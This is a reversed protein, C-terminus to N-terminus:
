NEQLHLTRLHEIREDLSESSLAARLSEVRLPFALPTYKKPKTFILKTPDSYTEFFSQIDPWHLTEKFVENYAQQLLLHTPEHEKLVQFLLNSSAQLNRFKKQQSPYNQIVMGSIVSIDRFQRKAMETSNISQKLDAWLNQTGLCEQLFNSNVDWKKNSFLEIGYDNASISISLSKNKSIRYALIAGIIDHNQRGLMPYLYLSYSNRSSIFEALLQNKKPVASRLAQVEWLSSMKQLEQDKAQIENSAIRHIQEKLLIGILLSNSMRSGSYSPIIGQNGKSKRVLIEDTGISNVELIHGSLIFSSGPQLRSAFGEEVSGIYGGSVFKVKIQVDSVITGINLRHLQATRRSLIRFCGEEEIWSMKHFDTYGHLTSGGNQLFNLCWDWNEKTLDKFCATGLVISYAEEPFLGRGIAQTLMWQCLLDYCLYLPQPQEMIKTEYAKRYVSADLIELSHTPLFYTQSTAFPSHSARGARQLFRSVSKGSGIQIVADVAPYDLGLDLSSTAVVARFNGTRLGQEIFERIEQSISSHHVALVGALDPEIDLLIRYWHEAQNRTNTFILVTNHQKLIELVYPAMSKGLHGAWPLKDIIKPLISHINIKKDLSSQIIKTKDFGFCLIDLAEQRNPLTASLGTIHLKPCLRKLYSIGLQIMVGRKSDLLEHWEDVVIGRLSKFFDLHAKQGFMLHLSEPTIILIEPLNKIQKQRFKADVDSNRIGISWDLGLDDIITQIRQALDKALSKLPSIWILKLGPTYEEPYNLYHIIHSLLAANTKGFGTPATVLCSFGYHRAKWTQIQFDFIENGNIRFYNKIQKLGPSNEWELKAM